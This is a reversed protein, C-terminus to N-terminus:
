GGRMLRAPPTADMRADILYALLDKAKTYGAHEILAAYYPLNYAMMLMPPHEFADVLLGCVENTSFNMPGRIHTMGREAVWQEATTLLASAVSPDDISEFFGFFGIPENHFSVYQHNVIAAIRGVVEKGQLALFYQVDAHQHFPHKDPNLLEKLDLLLPPVWAPDNKYLREPFALFSRRGSRGQVPVVCVAQPM